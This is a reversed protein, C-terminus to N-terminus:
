ALWLQAWDTFWGSLVQLAGQFVFSYNLLNETGFCGGVLWSLGVGPALGQALWLGLLLFERHQRGNGCRICPKVKYILRHIGRPDVRRRIRTQILKLVLEGVDSLPQDGVM